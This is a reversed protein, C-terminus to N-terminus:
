RSKRGPPAIARDLWIATKSKRACSWTSVCSPPRPRTVPRSGTISFSRRTAALACSTNRRRSRASTRTRLPGVFSLHCHGEVLGPMLTLGRADITEAAAESSIQGQGRAVKSVRNGVVLVEGPYRDNAEGDWIEVNRFLYATM